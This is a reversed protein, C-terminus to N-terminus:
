LPRLYRPRLTKSCDTIGSKSDRDGQFEGPEQDVSAVTRVTLGHFNNTWSVAVDDITALVLDDGARPYLVRRIRVARKSYATVPVSAPKNFNISFSSGVASSQQLSPSDEPKSIVSSTSNWGDKGVGTHSAGANSRPKTVTITNVSPQVTVFSTVIDFSRSAPPTKGGLWETKGDNEVFSYSPQDIKKSSKAVEILTVVHTVALYRTETVYVVEESSPKDNPFGTKTATLNYVPLKSYYGNTRKSTNTQLSM